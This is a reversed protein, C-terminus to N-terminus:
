KWKKYWTKVFNAAKELEKYEATKGYNSKINLLAEDLRYTSEKVLNFILKRVDEKLLEEKIIKRLQSKTIKM